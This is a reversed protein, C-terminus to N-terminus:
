YSEIDASRVIENPRRSRMFTDFLITKIEGNQNKVIM